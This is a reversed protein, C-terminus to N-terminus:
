GPCRERERERQLLHLLPILLPQRADALHTQRGGFAEVVRGHLVGGGQGPGLLGRCLPGESAAAGPLKPTPPPDTAALPGPPRSLDTAPARPRAEGDRRGPTESRPSYTTRPQLRHTSTSNARTAAPKKLSLLTNQPTDQTHCAHCGTTPLSREEIPTPTPTSPAATNHTQRDAHRARPPANPQPTPTPAPRLRVRRMLQMCGGAWGGERRWAAGRRRRVARPPRAM